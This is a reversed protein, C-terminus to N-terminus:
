APPQLLEVQALVDFLPGIDRRGLERAATLLEDALDGALDLIQRTDLQTMLM